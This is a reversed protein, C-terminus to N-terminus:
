LEPRHVLEIDRHRQAVLLPAAPQVLPPRLRGPIEATLRDGSGPPRRGEACCRTCAHCVTVAVVSAASARKMKM